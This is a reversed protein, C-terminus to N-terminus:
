MALVPRIEIQANEMRFIPCERAIAAAQEYSEAKIITYGSVLEKLEAAAIDTLVGDKKLLRKGSYELPSGGAVLQGKETLAGMWAGWKAMMAQKEEPTGKTVWSPDGGRYLFIFEKM